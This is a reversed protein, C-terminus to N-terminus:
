CAVSAPVVASGSPQVQRSSQAAPEGGQIFSVGPVLPHFITVNNDGSNICLLEHIPISEGGSEQM